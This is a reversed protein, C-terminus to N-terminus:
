GLYMSWARPHTKRTAQQLGLFFSQTVFFTCLLTQTLCMNKKPQTGEKKRWIKISEKDVGEREEVRIKRLSFIKAESFSPAPFQGGKGGGGWGGGGTDVTRYIFDWLRDDNRYSLVTVLYNKFSVVLIRLVIKWIPVQKYDM